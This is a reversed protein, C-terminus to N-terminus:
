PKVPGPTAPSDQQNQIQKLLASNADSQTKAEQILLEVRQQNTVSDKGGDFFTKGGGFITANAGMIGLVIAVGIGAMWYRQEKNAQKVTGFEKETRQLAALTASVAKDNSEVHAKLAANHAIAERRASRERLKMERQLEDAMKQIRRDMREEIASLKRDLQDMSMENMAVTHDSQEDKDNEDSGLASTASAASFSATSSIRGASPVTYGGQSLAFEVLARNTESHELAVLKVVREQM